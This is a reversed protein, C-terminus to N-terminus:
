STSAAAVIGLGFVLEGTQKHASTAALTGGSGFHKIRKMDRM